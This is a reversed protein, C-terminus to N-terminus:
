VIQERDGGQQFYLEDVPDPQAAEQFVPEMLEPQPQDPQALAAAKEAAKQAKADARDQKAKGAALAKAERQAQEREQREINRQILFPAGRRQLRDMYEPNDGQEALELIAGMLIDADWHELGAMEFLTGKLILNHDRAKRQQEKTQSREARLIKTTKKSAEELQDLLWFKRFLQNMRTEEPGTRKPMGWLKVVLQEELTPEKLAGLKTVTNLKWEPKM